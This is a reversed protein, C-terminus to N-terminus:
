FTLMVLYAISLGTCVRGIQHGNALNITRLISQYYLKGFWIEKQLNSIKVKKNYQKAVTLKNAEINELTCLRHCNMDKLDDIMLDKYDGASL